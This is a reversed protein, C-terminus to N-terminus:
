FQCRFDNTYQVFRSFSAKAPVRVATHLINSFTRTLVSALLKTKSTGFGPIYVVIVVKSKLSRLEFEQYSM